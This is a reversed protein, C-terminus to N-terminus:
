IAHWSFTILFPTTRHHSPTGHGIARETALLQDAAKLTLPLICITECQRLCPHPTFDAGSRPKSSYTEDKRSQRAAERKGNGFFYMALSHTM